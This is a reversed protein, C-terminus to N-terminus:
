DLLVNVNFDQYDDELAAEDENEEGDVDDLPHEGVDEGLIERILDDEAENTGDENNNQEVIWEDDSSIDDITLEDSRRAQKKKGLKSNAVVFIVDNM